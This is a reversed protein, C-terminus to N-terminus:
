PRWVGTTILSFFRAVLCGSLRIVTLLYNVFSRLRQWLSCDVPVQDVRLVKGLIRGVAVPADARTTNDAQTVGCWGHRGLVYGLFRHVVLHDDGRGYVIIDGPWYFSQREIQVQSGHSICGTMCDGDVDLTLPGDNSLQNIADFLMYTIDYRRLGTGGQEGMFEVLNRGEGSHSMDFRLLIGLGM